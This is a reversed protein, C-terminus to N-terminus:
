AHISCSDDIMIVMIAAISLRLPEGGYRGDGQRDDVAVTMVAVAVAMLQLYWLWMLMVAVAIM